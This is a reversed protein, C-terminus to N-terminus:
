HLRLAQQVSRLLLEPTFPKTLCARCGQAMLRQVTSAEVDEALVLFPVPIDGHALGELFGLPSKDPGSDMDAIFLDIAAPTDQLRRMTTLAETVSDAVSVQYRAQKLMLAISHRLNEEGESLLIHSIHASQAALM